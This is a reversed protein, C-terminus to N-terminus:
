NTVRYLIEQVIHFTTSVHLFLQDTPRTFVLSHLFFSNTFIGKHNNVQRPVLYLSVDCMVSYIYLM